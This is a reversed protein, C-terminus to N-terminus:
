NKKKSGQSKAVTVKPPAEKKKPAPSIMFFVGSDGKGDLVDLETWGAQRKKFLNKASVFRAIRGQKEADEQAKIVKIREKRNM